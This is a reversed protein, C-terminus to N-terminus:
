DEDANQDREDDDNEDKIEDVQQRDVAAGFLDHTNDHNDDAYNRQQAVESDELIAQM